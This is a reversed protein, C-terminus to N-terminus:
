HLFHHLIISKTIFIICFLARPSSFLPSHYEQHHFHHLIISETIFSICCRSPSSMTAPSRRAQRRSRPGTELSLFIWYLLQIRFLFLSFLISAIYLTSTIWSHDNSIPLQTFNLRWRTFSGYQTKKLCILWRSYFLLPSAIVIGKNKNTNMNSPTTLILCLPKGCVCVCM